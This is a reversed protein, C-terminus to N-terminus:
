WLANLTITNNYYYSFLLTLRLGKNVGQPLLVKRERVRKNELIRFGRERFHPTWVRIYGYM